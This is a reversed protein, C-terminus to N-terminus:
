RRTGAEAPIRSDVPPPAGSRNGIAGGTAPTAATGVLPVAAERRSAPAAAPEPKATVKRRISVGILGGLFAVLAGGAILFYGVQLDRALSVAPLLNDIDHKFSSLLFGIEAAWVIALISALFGLARSIAGGRLVIVLGILMLVGGVAFTVVADIPTSGMTFGNLNQGSAPLTAWSPSVGVAILAGGAVLLVGALFRRAMATVEKAM